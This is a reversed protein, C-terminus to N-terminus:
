LTEGQFCPGHCNVWLQPILRMQILSTLLFLLHIGSLLSPISSGQRWIHWTVQFPPHCQVARCSRSLSDGLPTRLELKADVIVYGREWACSRQLSTKCFHLLPSTPHPMPCCFWHVDEQLQTSHPTWLLPPLLSTLSFAVNGYWM